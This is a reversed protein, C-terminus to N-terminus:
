FEALAELLAKKLDNFSYPKLLIDHVGLKLLRKSCDITGYATQVIVPITSHYKKKLIELFHEGNMRPMMLDTVVIDIEHKRLQELGEEGDDALIVEYGERRLFITLAQSFPKEDEILLIRKKRVEGAAIDSICQEIFSIYSETIGKKASESDAYGDKKRILFDGAEFSAKWKDGDPEVKFKFCNKVKCEFIDENEIWDFM